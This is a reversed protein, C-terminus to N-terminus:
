RYRFTKNKILREIYDDCIENEMCSAHISKGYIYCGIFCCLEGQSDFDSYKCNGCHKKQETKTIM